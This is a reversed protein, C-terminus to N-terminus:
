SAGGSAKDPWRFRVEAGQFRGSGPGDVQMLLWRWGFVDREKKACPVFRWWDLRPKELREYDGRDCGSDGLADPALRSWDDPNGDYRVFGIVEDCDHILYAKSPRRKNM